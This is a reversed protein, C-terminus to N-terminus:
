PTTTSPPGTPPKQRIIANDMRLADIEQESLVKTPTFVVNYKGGFDIQGTYTRGGDRSTLTFTSEGSLRFIAKNSDISELKILTKYVTGPVYMRVLEFDYSDNKPYNVATIIGLTGLILVLPVWRWLSKKKTSM